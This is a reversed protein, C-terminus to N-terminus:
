FKKKKKKVYDFLAKKYQYTVHGVKEKLYEQVFKQELIVFDAFNAMGQKTVLLLKFDFQKRKSKEPIGAVAQNANTKM